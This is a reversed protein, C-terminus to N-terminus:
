VADDERISPGLRADRNKPGNRSPMLTAIASTTMFFRRNENRVRARSVRLTKAAAQEPVGEEGVEGEAPEPESASVGLWNLPV